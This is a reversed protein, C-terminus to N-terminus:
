IKSLEGKLHNIVNVETADIGKLDAIYCSVWDTLHIHYMARELDSNGKSIIRKVHSTYQSIIQECVEMRKKNRFYDENNELIVVAMNENKNRWGVLENHNMEPVIHHWCLEKSNENIQQRFRIAVAEFSMTYIVTTKNLLFKATELAEAQISDKYTNLLDITAKLENSYNSPIVKNFALVYLLQTFSYGLCARPPMGGPLIIHDLGHQKALEIVKGGSSVCVIKARAKIAAELAEVTEETNGSYSSAIFLTNENVFKALHYKKNVCIPVVSTQEMLEAVLTGSIGSGGLGSILVNHIPKSSPTLIAKEGIAIAENLQQGFNEVLKKM